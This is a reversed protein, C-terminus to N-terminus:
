DKRIGRQIRRHFGSFPRERSENLPRGVQKMCDSLDKPSAIIKLDPDGPSLRPFPVLFVTVHTIFLHDVRLTFLCDSIVLHRAWSYDMYGTHSATCPRGKGYIHM